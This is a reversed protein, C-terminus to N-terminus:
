DNTDFVDGSNDTSTTTHRHPAEAMATTAWWRRAIIASQGVVVFGLLHGALHDPRQFFFETLNTLVHRLNRQLCSVVAAAAAAIVVAAAVPSAAAAAMTAM